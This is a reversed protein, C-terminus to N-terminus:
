NGRPSEPRAFGMFALCNAKIGGYSLPYLLPNRVRQHLNSEQRLCLDQFTHLSHHLPLVVGQSPTLVPEFGTLRGLLISCSNMVIASATRKVPCLSASKIRRSFSRMPDPLRSRSLMVLFSCLPFRM